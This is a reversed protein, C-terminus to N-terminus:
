LTVVLDQVIRVDVVFMGHKGGDKRRALALFTSRYIPRPVPSSKIPTMGPNSEVRPVGHSDCLYSLGGGSM